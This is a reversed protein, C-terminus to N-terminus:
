SPHKRRTKLRNALPGLATKLVPPGPPGTVGPLRDSKMLAHVPLQMFRVVIASLLLPSITCILGPLM